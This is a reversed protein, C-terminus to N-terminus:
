DRMRLIAERDFAKRGDKEGRRREPAAKKAWVARLAEKLFGL